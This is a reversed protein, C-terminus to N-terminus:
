PTVAEESLRRDVAASTDGVMSCLRMSKRTIPATTAVLVALPPPNATAYM